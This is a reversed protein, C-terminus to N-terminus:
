AEATSQLSASNEGSAAGRTTEYQRLLARDLQLDAIESKVQYTHGLWGRSDAMGKMTASGAAAIIVVLGTGVYPFLKRFRTGPNTLGIRVPSATLSDGALSAGMHTRTVSRAEGM